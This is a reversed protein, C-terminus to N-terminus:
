EFYKNLNDMWDSFIKYDQPDKEKCIEIKEYQMSSTKCSSCLVKYQTKLSINYKNTDFTIHKIYKANIVVNSLKIFNSM